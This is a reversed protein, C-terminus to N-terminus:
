DGHGSQIEGTNRTYPGIGANVASGNWQLIDHQPADWVVPFSVPANAPKANSPEVINKAM